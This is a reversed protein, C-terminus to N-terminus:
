STATLLSDLLEMYLEWEPIQHREALKCAISFVKEDLARSFFFLKIEQARYSSRLTFLTNFCAGLFLVPKWPSLFVLSM